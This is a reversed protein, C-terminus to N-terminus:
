KPILIDMESDFEPAVWGVPKTVSALKGNPLKCIVVAAGANWKSSSIVFYQYRCNAHVTPQIGIYIVYVTSALAGLGMVIIPLAVRLDEYFTLRSLRRQRKNDM